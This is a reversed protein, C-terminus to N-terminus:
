MHGKTGCNYCRTELEQEKNEIKKSTPKKWPEEKKESDDKQRYSKMKDQHKKRINEYVKLKEKFDELRRAGYLVIKNNTNDQIGDIVYQILAKEEIKDRSALEKMTLYYEQVTEKKYMKRKALTEHLQTSNIKDAFENELATKLKKWTKVGESEIFM